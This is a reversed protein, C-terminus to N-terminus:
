KDCWLKGEKAFNDPKMERMIISVASEPCDLSEAIAKTVKEALARKQDLTRGEILEIQVIPM